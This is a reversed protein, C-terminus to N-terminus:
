FLSIVCVVAADINGSSTYYFVPFSIVWLLCGAIAAGFSAGDKKLIFYISIAAILVSLINISIIGLLPDLPLLSALYPVMPRYSYPISTSDLPMSHRFYETFNMYAQVDCSVEGEHLGVLPRIIALEHRNFRPYLVLALNALVLLVSLTRHTEFWHIINRIM